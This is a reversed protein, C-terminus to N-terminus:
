LLNLCSVSSTKYHVAPWAWSPSTSFSTRTYESPTLSVYNRKGAVEEHTGDEDTDGVRREGQIEPERLQIEPLCIPCRHSCRPVDPVVSCCLLPMVSWQDAPSPPTSISPGMRGRKLSLMLANSEKSSLTAPSGLTSPAGTFTSVLGGFTALEEWWFFNRSCTAGGMM